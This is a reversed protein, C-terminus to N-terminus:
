DDELNDRNEQCFTIPEIRFWGEKIGWPAGRKAFAANFPSIRLAGMM